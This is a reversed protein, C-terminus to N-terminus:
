LAAAGTARQQAGQRAGRLERTVGPMRRGPLSRGSTGPGALHHDRHAYQDRRDAGMQQRAVVIFGRGDKLPVDERKEAEIGKAKLADITFAQDMAPYADPPMESLVMAVSRDRDEFGQFTTSAVMGPPPVVGIRLGLPFVPEAAQAPAIATLVCALFLWRILRPM